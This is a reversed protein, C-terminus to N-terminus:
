VKVASAYLTEILHVTELSEYLRSRISEGDRICRVFYEWQNQFPQLASTLAPVECPVAHDNIWLRLPPEPLQITANLGFLTELRASGRTGYIHLYTTDQALAKNWSVELFLDLPGDFIAFASASVEVDCQGDDQTHQPLYWSTQANANVKHDTLTYSGKLQPHGTLWLVLDVLHSGLDVLVGGGAERRHTFWTGIGPVGKQRLWGCRISTIVGLQGEQIYRALALVDPRFRNAFAIMLTRQNREAAEVMARAEILSTAMPKECLVHIHADLVAISMSAHLHNPCAVLVIDPHLALLAALSTCVHPLAYQRALVHAQHEDPDFIGTLAVFPMRALLPLHVREVIRGAGIIGIHLLKQEKKSM